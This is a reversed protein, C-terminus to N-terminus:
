WNLVIVDYPHVHVHVHLPYTWILKYCLSFISERVDYAGRGAYYHRDQSFVIWCICVCVICLRHWMIDRSMTCSAILVVERSVACNHCTYQPRGKINLYHNLSLSLSLPSCLSIWVRAMTHLYKELHMNQVCLCAHGLCLLRHICMTPTNTTHIATFNWRYMVLLHATYHM